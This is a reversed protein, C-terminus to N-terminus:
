ALQTQALLRDAQDVREIDQRRNFALLLAAALAFTYGAVTAAGAHVQLATVTMATVGTATIAIAVPPALMVLADFIGVAPLAVAPGGPTLATLASGALVQVALLVGTIPDNGGSRFMMLLWALSALGAFVAVDLGRGHAKIGPPITALGLWVAALGALRLLRRAEHWRGDPSLTTILM